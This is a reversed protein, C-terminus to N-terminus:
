KKLFRELGWTSIFGLIGKFLFLLFRSFSPKLFRQPSLIFFASGAQGEVGWSGAETRTQLHVNLPRFFYM